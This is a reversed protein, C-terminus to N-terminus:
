HSVRKILILSGCNNGIDKYNHYTNTNYNLYKSFDLSKIEEIMNKKDQVKTDLFYSGKIM